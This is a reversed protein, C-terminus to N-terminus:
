TFRFDAFFVLDSFTSFDELQESLFDLGERVLSYLREPLGGARRILPHGLRSQIAQSGLAVTWCYAVVLILLLRTVHDPHRVLSDNWHWGGSKLDRFSQGQWHRRAYEPKTCNLDDTILAWPEDYGLGWM